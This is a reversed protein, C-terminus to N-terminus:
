RVAEPLPPCTGERYAGDLTAVLEAFQRDRDFETEAMRRANVRMARMRDPDRALGAITEAFLRPDDSEVTLGAGYRRLLEGKWGGYNMLCPLGAAAYDFFKNASNMELVPVRRIIMLGLDAAALWAPVDEKAIPGEFRINKIDRSRAESELRPRQGGDGVLYLIADPLLGSLEECVPLLFDLGNVLGMTGTHVILFRDSKLGLEERLVSGDVGPHFLDLDSGNPIVSVKESTIGYKLIGEKMGPSLAVVRISSRYARGALGKAIGILIPNRLIGMGIPVEPWLDRVEFVFPMGRLFRGALAPVAVTLPTTSAFVIDARPCRLVAVSSLIAFRLFEVLRRVFRMRNSYNSPIGWIPIRDVEGEVIGSWRHRRGQFSPMRATSTVVLVDHGARLLRQAFEYSRTSGSGERSKFYQHIYIIRMADGTSRSRGTAYEM